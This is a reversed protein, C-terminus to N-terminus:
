YVAHEGIGDAQATTEVPYEPLKPSGPTTGLILVELLGVGSKVTVEQTKGKIPVTVSASPSKTPLLRM